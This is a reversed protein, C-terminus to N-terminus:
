AVGLRTVCTRIGAEINTHNSAAYVSCLDRLPDSSYDLQAVM